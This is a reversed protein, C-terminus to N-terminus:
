SKVYTEIFLLPVFATATPISKNDNTVLKHYLVSPPACQVIEKDTEVVKTVIDKCINALNEITMSEGEQVLFEQYNKM